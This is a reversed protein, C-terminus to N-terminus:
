LIPLVLLKSRLNERYTGMLSEALNPGILFFSSERRLKSTVRLLCSYAFIYKSKLAFDFAVSSCKWSNFGSSLSAPSIRSNRVFFKVIAFRPSTAFDAIVRLEPLTSSKVLNCFDGRTTRL